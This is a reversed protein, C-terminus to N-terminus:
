EGGKRENTKGDSSVASIRLYVDFIIISRSSSFVGSSIEL